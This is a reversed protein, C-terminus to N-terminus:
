TQLTMLVLTRTNYDLNEWCRVSDRLRMKLYLTPYEWLCPLKQLTMKELQNNQLFIDLAVMTLVIRSYYYDTTIM